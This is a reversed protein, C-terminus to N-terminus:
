VRWHSLINNLLYRYHVTICLSTVCSFHYIELLFSLGTENRGIEMSHSGHVLGQRCPLCTGTGHTVCRLLIFTDFVYVLWSSPSLFFHANGIINPFSCPFASFPQPLFSGESNILPYKSLEMPHPAPASSSTVWVYNTTTKLIWMELCSEPKCWCLIYASLWAWLAALVM